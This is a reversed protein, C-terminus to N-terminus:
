MALRTAFSCHDSPQRGDNENRATCRRRNTDDDVGLRPQLVLRLQQLLGDGFGDVASPLHGDRNLQLARHEVDFVRAEDRGHDDGVRGPPPDVFLDHAHLAAMDVVGAPGDSLVDRLNM